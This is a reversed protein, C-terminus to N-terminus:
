AGVGMGGLEGILAHSSRSPLGFRGTLLNWSIAGILAAIIMGLSVGAKPAVLGGITNAVHTHLIEIAVLAGLLNFM